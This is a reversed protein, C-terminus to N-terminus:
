LEIVVAWAKLLSKLGINTPSGLNGSCNSTAQSLLSVNREWVVVPSLPRGANFTLGLDRPLLPLGHSNAHDRAIHDGTRGRSQVSPLRKGNM